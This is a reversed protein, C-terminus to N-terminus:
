SEIVYSLFTYLHSDGCLFFCIVKTTAAKPPKNKNDNANIVKFDVSHKHAASSISEETKSKEKHVSSITFSNESSTRRHGIKKPQQDARVLSYKGEDSQIVIIYFIVGRYYDFIQHIVGELCHDTSDEEQLEDSSSNVEPTDDISDSSVTITANRKM